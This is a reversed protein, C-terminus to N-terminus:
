EYRIADVVKIKSARLAPLTGSIAGILFGFALCGIILYAPAAAQLLNTDLSTVAIYEVTKSIGYGLGVGIIAGVLGLLGSEILFIQLIDKNTAGIAKMVGIEKTRELVSTYMTNAIGVAGVLLSIAAIGALFITIINLITQFSGLLEEPTLIQFDQTKETVGRFKRLKVEVNNAVDEVNEGENVQVVVWDVRNSINFFTRFMDLDMLIMNDDDSNGIKQLIGLVKVEQDNILLKDGAKLPKNFLNGTKYNNGLLVGQSGEKLFKGEELKYTGTEIYLDTKTSMGIVSNYRIVDNFEVKANGFVSGFADKVGRVKEIQTVDNNTLIDGGVSGPPGLFGTGPQVFFKDTGLQRFQEQVANQLGLSLSILMFITAISIFIGLMTLWTRLKRKRLNRVALKFYEQIM